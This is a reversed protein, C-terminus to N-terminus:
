ELFQPHCRCASDESSASPKAWEGDALGGCLRRGHRQWGASVFNADGLVLAAFLQLERGRLSNLSDRGINEAFSLNKGKVAPVRSRLMRAYARQSTCLEAAPRLATGQSLSVPVRHSDAVTAGSHADPRFLSSVRRQFGQPTTWQEGLAFPFSGRPLICTLFGAQPRQRM